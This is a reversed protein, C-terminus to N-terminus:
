SQTCARVIQEIIALLNARHILASIWKAVALGDRRLLQQVAVVLRPGQQLGGDAPVVTAKHCGPSVALGRQERPDSLFRPFLLSPGRDVDVEEADEGQIVDRICM